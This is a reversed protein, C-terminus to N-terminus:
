ADHAVQVPVAQLRSTAVPTKAASVVPMAHAELTPEAALQRGAIYGFTLAPGLTIGGGPYAGGMVSLADNGVAYLGPIPARNAGLVRAKEDTVVGAFTGLDGMGVKIAYYPGTELPAVCANPKHAPDGLFRNYATSGKGFEPDEGKAAHLNFQAITRELGVADVGIRQALEAPTRGRVLYGSRLHPFLPLPFPKVFGLGYRRLARHDCVLWAVAEPLGACAKQMAQGFDHYSHAENVFRKGDRGVAIVGPKYRDILHPFVGPPGSRRPVLSVPIWAGNNPLSGDTRAGATEALRWGDGTNGPPAPSWHEEGTPAHPFLQKRLQPDQPFGGTALVVGRRARLVVPRGDRTIEVGRVCGGEIMLKKVPVSTWIPVGLDMASKVLRAALANGNTLRQARGHVLMERAHQALRRAVYVASRLSRTCNFFHSVEQSANFMMGVFTIERLPPRLRKIEKGLEGADFPAALISRGGPRGGPATPHYDSFEPVAVFKLATKQEFFDVMRPGNELFADVRKADFHPGAEGQMYTRAAAITDDIGLDMAKPNCPVWMVGGSRATTGGFLAEKEVVLVDLGAHAATVATALAGAGSGAVIVDYETKPIGSAATM